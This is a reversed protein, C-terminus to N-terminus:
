ESFPNIRGSPIQQDGSNETSNKLLLLQNKTNEDFTNKSTDIVSSDIVTKSTTNLIQNLMVVCFILTGVLVVIFIFTNHRILLDKFSNTKQENTM